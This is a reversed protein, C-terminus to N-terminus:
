LASFKSNCVISQNVPKPRTITMKPIDHPGKWRMQEGFGVYSFSCLECPWKKINSTYPGFKGCLASDNQTWKNESIKQPHKRFWMNRQDIKSWFASFYPHRQSQNNQRLIVFIPLFRYVPIKFTSKLHSYMLTSVCFQMLICFFGSCFSKTRVPDDWVTTKLFRCFYHKKWFLGKWRM